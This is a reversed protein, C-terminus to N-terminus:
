FSFTISQSIEAGIRQITDQNVELVRDFPKKSIVFQPQQGSQPFPVNEVLDVIQNDRIFIFDLNFKMRNMWFSRVAPQDYVFLMGHDPPMSERDSLGQAQDKNSEAIELYIQHNNITLFPRDEEPTAKKWIFFIAIGLIFAIIFFNLINKKFRFKTITM